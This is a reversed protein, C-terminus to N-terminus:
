KIIALDKPNIADTIDMVHIGDEASVYLINGRSMVDFTKAMAVNKIVKVDNLDKVNSIKLGDKGDCIYLIDGVKTLGHPNTMSYSKVLKPQNLNTIDVIDLQNTFGQCQTGSRLTVYATNGEAIVPDCVRAHSFVGLKVPIAPNAISVIHMGTTTGVFLNEGMPYITEVEAFISVTSKPIPKSPNTINFSYVRSVDVIFLHDNVICFHSMSGGQSSGSPFGGNTIGNSGGGFSNITSTSGFMDEFAFSNTVLNGDLVTDVYQFGTFVLNEDANHVTPPSNLFAHESVDTVRINNFDTLDLTLMDKSCDLYLMGDKMAMDKAAGAPIFGIKQPSAPNTMEIIHIGNYLDQLLLYNNYLIFKTPREVKRAAQFKLSNYYAKKEMFQPLAVTVKQKNTNKVCSSVLVVVIAILGFLNKM